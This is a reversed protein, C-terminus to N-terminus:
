LSLKASVICSWKVSCDLVNCVVTLHAPQRSSESLRANRRGDWLETSSPVTWDTEHEHQTRKKEINVSISSFNPQSQLVRTQMNRTHILWYSRSWAVCVRCSALRRGCVAGAAAVAAAAASSLVWHRLLVHLVRCRPM